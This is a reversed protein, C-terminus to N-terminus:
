PLPKWEAQGPCSVDGASDAGGTSGIDNSSVVGSRRCVVRNGVRKRYIITGDPATYSDQQVGTVPEVHAADLERRLRAWPTNAETLARSGATRIEKAILRADRRALEIDVNSGSQMRPPTVSADSKETPRAIPITDLTTIAPPADKSVRIEPPKPITPLVRTVKKVVRNQPQVSPRPSPAAPLLLISVMELKAPSRPRRAQPWVLVALLHFGVIFALVLRNRPLHQLDREMRSMRVRIGLEVPNPLVIVLASTNSRSRPMRRIPPMVPDHVLPGFGATPRLM